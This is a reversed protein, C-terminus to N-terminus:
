QHDAPPLELGFGAAVKAGVDGWEGSRQQMNIYEAASDWSRREIPGWSCGCGPSFFLQDDAVVYCVMQGCIGCDHHDIRSIGAKRVAEQVQQGTVM